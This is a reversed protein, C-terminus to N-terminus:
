GVCRRAGKLVFVRAVPTTATEYLADDNGAIGGQYRLRSARRGQLQTCGCVHLQFPELHSM